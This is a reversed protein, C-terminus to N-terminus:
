RSALVAGGPYAVGWYQQRNPPATSPGIGAMSVRLTGLPTGDVGADCCSWLTSGVYRAQSGVARGGDELAKAYYLGLARGVEAVIM